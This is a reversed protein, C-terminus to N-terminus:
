GHAHDIEYSLLSSCRSDIKSLSASRSSNSIRLYECSVTSTATTTNGLRELDVRVLGSVVVTIASTVSPAYTTAILIYVVNPQLNATFQFQGNGASDDDQLYLNTSPTSAFFSGTYLYGYSDITSVSRFRYYGATSVTVQIAEYYYYSGTVGNYRTFRPSTSTWASTYTV